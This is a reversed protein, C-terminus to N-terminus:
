NKIIKKVITEKDSQIKIIYFGKILASLDITSTNSNPMSHILRNGTINFVELQSIKNSSQLHLYDTVPNPWITLETKNNNRVSVATNIDIYFVQDYLTNEDDSVNFTLNDEFTYSGNHLYQIKEDYIDQQTFTSIATGSTNSRIIKGNVPPATITYILFGNNIEKDISSLHQATINTQVGNNAILIENAYITPVDNASNVTIIFSQISSNDSGGNLVGGNDFLQV